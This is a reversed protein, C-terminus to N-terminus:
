VMRGRGKGRIAIGCGRVKGGAAMKKLKILGGKAVASPSSPADPEGIGPGGTDAGSGRIGDEASNATANAEAKASMDNEGDSSDGGEGTGIYYFRGPGSGGDMPAESAQPAGMPSPPFYNHQSDFGPRYNADPMVSRRAPNALEAMKVGGGDAYRKPKRSKMMAM